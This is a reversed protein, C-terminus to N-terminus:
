RRQPGSMDVVSLRGDPGRAFTFRREAWDQCVVKSNGDSDISQTDDMWRYRLDMVLREPTDEVVDQRIIAVMRPNPCRAYDETARDAYFSEVEWQLGPQGALSPGQWSCAALTLCAILSRRLRTEFM